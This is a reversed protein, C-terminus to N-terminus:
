LVDSNSRSYSEVNKSVELNGTIASPSEQVKLTYSSIIDTDDNATIGSRMIIVPIAYGSSERLSEELIIKGNNVRINEEIYSNNKIKYKAYVIDTKKIETNFTIQMREISFADSAENNIYIIPNAEPEFRLFAKKNRIVLMEREEKNSSPMPIKKNLRLNKYFDQKNSLSKSNLAAINEEGFLHLHLYSEVFVYDNNKLYSNTLEFSIPKNVKIEETDIYNGKKRYMNYFFSVQKLSLDFVVGQQTLAEESSYRLLSERLVKNIEPEKRLNQLDLYKNQKFTIELSKVKIPEFFLNIGEAGKNVVFSVINSEDKNYTVKEIDLDFISATKINIENIKENGIFDFLVTISVPKVKRQVNSEFLLRQFVVYDFVNEEDELYRIDGSYLPGNLDGLFSKEELLFIEKASVKKRSFFPLKLDKQNSSLSQQNSFGIKMKPDENEQKKNNSNNEFFAKKYVRSAKTRYELFRSSLDAKVKEIKEYGSLLFNETESVFSNIKKFEQKKSRNYFYLYTMLNKFDRGIKQSRTVSLSNVTNIFFSNSVNFNMRTFFSNILAKEEEESFNQKILSVRYRFAKEKIFSEDTDIRRFM